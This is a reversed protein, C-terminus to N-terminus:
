YYVALCDSSPQCVDFQHRAHIGKEIPLQDAPSHGPGGFRRITVFLLVFISYYRFPGSFPM